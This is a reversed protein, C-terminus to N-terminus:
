RSYIQLSELAAKFTSFENWRYNVQNMLDDVIATWEAEFNQIRDANFRIFEPDDVSKEPSETFAAIKMIPLTGKSKICILLLEILEVYKLLQEKAKEIVEDSANCKM